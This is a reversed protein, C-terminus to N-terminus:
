EEVILTGKMGAAFHGPFSCIYTYDGTEEPVTFTIEVTEGGGALPTHAIIQDTLKSPIFDNDRATAAARSFANIDTDKKLVVVNHAMAVKPLKSVTTLVIKIEEGPAATIETVDFKMQDSGEIQITRVDSDQANAIFFSLFLLLSLCVTKKLLYM